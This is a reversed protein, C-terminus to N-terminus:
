FRTSVTLAPGSGPDANGAVRQRWDLAIQTAQGAVPLRAAIRPGIDLRNVTAIGNDAGNDASNVVSGQGGSWLGAGLIVERQGDQLVPKELTMQLDFFYASDKIGVIGAQGYINARINGPLARPAIDSVIYAAPKNNGGSDLAIRQEVALQVPIAKVPRFLAGLAIESQAPGSLARTARLFLSPANRNAWPYYRAIAGAQSGGYQSRGGINQQDAPVFNGGRLFAWSDLAWRDNALINPKRAAALPMRKDGTSPTFNQALLGNHANAPLLNRGAFAASRQNWLLLQHGALIDAPLSAGYFIRAARPLAEGAEANRVPIDQLINGRWLGDTQAAIELSPMPRKPAASMGTRELMQQLPTDPAPGAFVGNAIMRGFIWLLLLIVLFRLANGTAPADAYIHQSRLTM